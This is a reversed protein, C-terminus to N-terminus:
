FSLRFFSLFTHPHLFSFFFPFSFFPPPPPFPPFFFAYFTCTLMSFLQAQDKYKWCFFLSFESLSVFLCHINANEIRRNLLFCFLLFSSSSSGSDSCKHWLLLSCAFTNEHFPLKFDLSLFSSIFTVFTSFIQSLIPQSLWVTLCTSLHNEVLFGYFMKSCVVFCWLVNSCSLIFDCSPVDM